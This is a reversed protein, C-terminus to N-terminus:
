SNAFQCWNLPDKGTAIMQVIRPGRQGVQTFWTSNTLESAARTYDAVKMFAIFNKFKSLGSTGLNYTLDTVARKRVDNLADWCSSGLISQAGKIATTVDTQFWQTVKEKSINTQVPYQSTETPNTLLHGIGGTILGRSDYYSYYKVGENVKLQCELIDLDIDTASANADIGDGMVDKNTNTSNKSDEPQQAATNGAGGSGQYNQESESLTPEAGDISSLKFGQNEPCPEFTPLRSVTTDIEQANRVFKDEPIFVVWFKSNFSTSGPVASIAEYTTGSYTVIDGIKYSVNSIWEPYKITTKWTPLVNIKDNIPKVEAKKAQDANQAEDPSGPTAPTPVSGSNFDVYGSQATIIAGSGEMLIADGKLIIKPAGVQFSTSGKLLIDKGSNVNVNDNSCLTLFGQASLSFDANTGIRIKGTASLDLAAGTTLKIGKNSNFDQGGKLTTISVSNNALINLNNENITIYAAGQVTTQMNALSQMVINGGDGKGEGKYEWFPIDKITNTGNVDYAFKTTTEKTDKAAKIFINQGAEFNINRDARFNLDKQSRMSINSAGFIDINGNQDMQIWSTGDRNILFIMGNTEDIKIQAGSKTAFQVYESSTGDDMIFSSGGTRRTTTTGKQLPGPTLIGYVQSPAERRATSTTTGRIPDTILGQNGIGKFKTKEYPRRVNDPNTTSTDWKNYEAVPVSHGPDANNKGYQYNNATSAMGPVMQNMYQQYMSGIWIGKSPDGNIFMVLVQNELDPPVMWMGYSTQTGEFAETDNKNETDPNTAGAFPSCYNVTIWSEKNDPLSGFEAIWVKLRGMKQVDTNDKVFGVFVGFLTTVRGPTKFDTGKLPKNSRSYIDSM